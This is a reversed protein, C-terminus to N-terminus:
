DAASLGCAQLLRARLEADHRPAGDAANWVADPYDLAYYKGSQGRCRVEPCEYTDSTRIKGWATLYWTRPTKSLAGLFEDLTM